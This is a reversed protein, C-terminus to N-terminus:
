AGNGHHLGEIHESLKPLAVKLLVNGQLMQDPKTWPPVKQELRGGSRQNGTLFRFQQHIKGQAM